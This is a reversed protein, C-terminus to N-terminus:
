PGRLYAAYENISTSAKSSPETAAIRCHDGRLTHPFTRKIGGAYCCDLLFISKPAGTEAIRTELQELGVNDHDGKKAGRHLLLLKLDESLDGHGFYYFLLLDRDQA